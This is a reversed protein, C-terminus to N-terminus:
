IDLTKCLSVIDEYTREPKDNWRVLGLGIYKDIIDCMESYNEPYCKNIAGFLCWSYTYPSDYPTDKGNVDRCCAGKCFKDPGTILELVKM